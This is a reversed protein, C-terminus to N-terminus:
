GRAGLKQLLLTKLDTVDPSRSRIDGVVQL